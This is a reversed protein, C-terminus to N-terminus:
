VSGAKRKFRIKSVISQDIPRPVMYADEEVMGATVLLKPNEDILALGQVIEVNMLHLKTQRRGLLEGIVEYVRRRRTGASLIRARGIRRIIIEIVILLRGATDIGARRPSPVVGNRKRWLLLHIHHHTEIRVLLDSSKDEM